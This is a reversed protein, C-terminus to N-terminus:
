KKHKRKHCKQCLWKVKLPKSYDSHHAQIKGRRHCKSCTKPRIIKGRIVAGNLINHAKIKDANKAM